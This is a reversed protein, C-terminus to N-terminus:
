FCAGDIVPPVHPTHDDIRASVKRLQSSLPAEVCFSEVFWELNFFSVFCSIGCPVGQVPKLLEVVDRRGMFDRKLQRPERRSSARGWVVCSRNNVWHYLQHQLISLKVVSVKM